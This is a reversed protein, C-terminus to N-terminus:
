SFGKWHDRALIKNVDDLTDHFLHVLINQNTMEKWERGFMQFVHASVTELRELRGSTLLEDIEQRVQKADVINM